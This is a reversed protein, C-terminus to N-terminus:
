AIVAKEEEMPCRDKKHGFGTCVECRIIDGEKTQCEAIRHGMKGCRFCRVRARKEAGGGSRENGNGKGNSNGKLRARNRSEGKGAGDAAIFAQEAARTHSEEAERQSCLMNYRTGTVSMLNGRTLKAASSLNEKAVECEQPLANVFRTFVFRDDLAAGGCEQIMDRINELERLAVNPDVKVDVQYREFRHFLQQAEGQTEPKYVADLTEMAEQPSKCRRILSKDNERAM